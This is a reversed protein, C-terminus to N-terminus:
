FNLNPKVVGGTQRTGPGGPNPRGRGPRVGAGRGIPDGPESTPLVIGQPIRRDFAGEREGAVPGSM